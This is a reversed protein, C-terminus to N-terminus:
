VQFSIAEQSPTRNICLFIRPQPPYFCFLGCAAPRSFWTLDTGQRHGPRRPPSPPAWSRSGPPLAGSAGGTTPGQPWPCPHPRRPAPFGQPCSPPGQDPGAPFALSGPSLTGAEYGDSFWSCFPSSDVWVLAPTAPTGAAGQSAVVGGHGLSQPITAAAAAAATSM